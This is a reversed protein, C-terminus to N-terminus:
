LTEGVRRMCDGPLVINNSAGLLMFSVWCYQQGAPRMMPKHSQGGCGSTSNCKEFIQNHKGQPWCWLLRLVAWIYPIVLPEAATNSSAKTHLRSFTLQVCWVKGSSRYPWNLRQLVNKYLSFLQLLVFLVFLDPSSASPAPLPFLFIIPSLQRTHIGEVLAGKFRQCMIVVSSTLFLFSTCIFWLISVHAYSYWRYGYDVSYIHFRTWKSASELLLWWSIGTDPDYLRTKYNQWLGSPSSSTRWGTTWVQSPRGRESRDSVTALSWYLLVQVVCM